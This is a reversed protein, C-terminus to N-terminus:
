KADGPWYHSKMINSGGFQSLMHIDCFRVFVNPEPGSPITWIALDGSEWDTPRRLDRFHQTEVENMLSFMTKMGVRALERCNLGGM